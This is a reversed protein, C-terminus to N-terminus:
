RAAEAMAPAVVRGSLGLDQYSLGALAPWSAGLAAFAQAATGPADVSPDITALAGAAVWWTPQAMGPAAKAQQYRQVRGDRNMWTGHEEAMTTVPLVLGARAGADSEVTGLVVVSGAGALAAAEADTLLVDLLVM